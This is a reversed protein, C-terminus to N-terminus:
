LDGAICEDPSAEFVGEVFGQVGQNERHSGGYESSFVSCGRGHEFYAELVGM